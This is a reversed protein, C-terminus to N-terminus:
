LNDSSSEFAVYRGDSSIIPNDSFQDGAVTNQQNAASVVRTTGAVLDRVYVDFNGNNDIPGLNSATSEFAVYRGDDSIVPYQSTNNGTGTGNSNVSVLTTTNATMDRVFVDKVGNTDGSVLDSSRSDFAVYRGDPTVQWYDSYGNGAGTGAQNISVMRTTGAVLDRIFVAGNSNTLGSVLDTSNSAFVVYRGDPTIVPNSAGQNGVGTGASNIDILTTTGTQLDRVFIDTGLNNDTIGSVLNTAFSSFAVYRGNASIVAYTCNNNGPGTGSSNVSVLISTGAVTDRVFVDSSNNNDGPVINSASSVFAVYRGDASVSNHPRLTDQLSSSGNPTISSGGLSPDAVSIAQITAPALRDELSEVALTRSRRRSKKRNFRKDKQSIGFRVPWSWRM